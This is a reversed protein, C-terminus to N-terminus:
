EETVISWIDGEPAGRGDLFLHPEGAYVIGDGAGESFLVVDGEKYVEKFVPPFAVVEGTVFKMDVAYVGTRTKFHEKDIPKVIIKNGLPEHKIM